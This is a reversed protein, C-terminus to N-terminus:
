VAGRHRDPRRESVHPAACRDLFDCQGQNSYVGTACMSFTLQIGVAIQAHDSDGDAECFLVREFGEEEADVDDANYEYEAM